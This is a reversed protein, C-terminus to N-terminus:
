LTFSTKLADSLVDYVEKYRNGPNKLTTSKIRSFMPAIVDDFTESTYVKGHKDKVQQGVEPFLLLVARFLPPKTIIDKAKTRNAASIFASLYASM